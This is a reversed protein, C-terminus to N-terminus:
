GAPAAVEPGPLLGALDARIQLALFRSYLRSENMAGGMIWLGRQPTRRWMNRLFHDDDFGWIRGVRDAVDDGLLRRVGEQQNEYGTALVVLECPLETGDV